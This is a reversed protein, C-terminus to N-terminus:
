VIVFDIKDFYLFEGLEEDFRCLFVNYCGDEVQHRNVLIAHTVTEENHIFPSVIEYMKFKADDIEIIIYEHKIYFHNSDTGKVIYDWPESVIMKRYM